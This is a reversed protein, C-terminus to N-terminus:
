PQDLQDLRDKLYLITKKHQYLTEYVGWFLHRVYDLQFEAVLRPGAGEASLGRAWQRWKGGTLLIRALESEGDLRKRLYQVILTELEGEAELFEEKLRLLAEKEFVMEMYRDKADMYDPNYHEGMAFIYWDLDIREGRLRYRVENALYDWEQPRNLAHPPVGIITLPIEHRCIPCHTAASPDEQVNKLKELCYPCRSSGDWAPGVDRRHKLPIDVVNLHAM